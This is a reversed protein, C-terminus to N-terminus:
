KRHMAWLRDHYADILFTTNGVHPLLPPLEPLPEPSVV